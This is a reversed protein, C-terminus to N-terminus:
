AVLNIDFEATMTILVGPLLTETNVAAAASVLFIFMAPVAASACLV